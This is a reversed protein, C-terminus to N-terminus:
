GLTFYQPPILVPIVINEKIDYVKGNWKKNFLYEGEYELKGNDYYNKGKM